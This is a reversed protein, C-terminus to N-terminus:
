AFSASQKLRGLIKEREAEYDKSSGSWDGIKEQDLANYRIALRVLDIAVRVRSDTENVPEYVITVIDGWTSRPNDGDRLREIARGNMRVAFDNASLVTTEYSGGSKVEETVTTIAEAKRRLFLQTSLRADQVEDIQSELEGYRKEIEAEVDRILRRLAADSLDTEVHAQVIAPNILAM